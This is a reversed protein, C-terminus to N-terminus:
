REQTVMSLQRIGAHQVLALIQAVTGYPLAHDAQILVQPPHASQALRKLEVELAAMEVPRGDLSIAGAANIALDTHHLDPIPATPATKPLEV